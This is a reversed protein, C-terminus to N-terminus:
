NGGESGLAHRGELGGGITRGLDLHPLINGQMKDIVYLHEFNKSLSEFAEIYMRRRTVDPAQEYAELIQRFLQVEGQARNVRETAYGEAQAIAQRAEGQARPIRQNYIEQAENIMREKEQQSENVENFAGKVPTPPNVNQLQVTVVRLGSQYQDMIAQIEERAKEAIAARGVTLIEDAYRNGIIRRVVSESIDDLTGEVAHVRFLYDVPDEIQYQVTWQFDVVNLDGSLMISEDEYGRTAMRSRSEPQVTRYGYERQLVRGTMVKHVQDIGLPIKFHLGASTTHSFKGFRKVVATEQPEVTYYSNLGALLALLLLGVLVFPRGSFSSSNYREKLRRLFDELDRFNGPGQPRNPPREWHM